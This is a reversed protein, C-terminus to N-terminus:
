DTVRYPHGVQPYDGDATSNHPWRCAVTETHEGPHEECRVRNGPPIQPLPLRIVVTQVSGIEAEDDAHRDLAASLATNRISLTQTEGNHHTVLATEAYSTWGSGDRTPEVTVSVVAKGTDEREQLMEHAAAALKSVEM